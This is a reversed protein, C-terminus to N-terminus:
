RGTAGRSSDSAAISAAMFRIASVAREIEGASSTVSCGDRSPATVLSIARPAVANLDLDFDRGDQATADVLRFQAGHRGADFVEEAKRFHAEDGEGIEIGSLNDGGEVPLMRAIEEVDPVQEGVFAVAILQSPSEDDIQQHV